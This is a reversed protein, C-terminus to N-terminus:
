RTESDKLSATSTCMEFVALSLKRSLLGADDDQGFCLRLEFCFLPSIRADHRGLEYARLMMIKLKTVYAEYAVREDATLTQLDQSNFVKVMMKDFEARSSETPKDWMLYAFSYGKFAQEALNKQSDGVDKMEQESIGAGSVVTSLRNVINLKEFATEELKVVKGCAVAAAKTNLPTEVPSLKPNEVQLSARPHHGLVDKQFWNEVDQRNFYLVLLIIPDAIFYVNRVQPWHLPVRM